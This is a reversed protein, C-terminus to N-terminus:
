GKDHSRARATEKSELQCVVDDCALFEQFGLKCHICYYPLGDKPTRPPDAAATTDVNAPM